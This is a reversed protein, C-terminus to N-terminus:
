VSNRILPTSEEMDIKVSLEAFKVSALYRILELAAVVFLGIDLAVYWTETLTIDTSSLGLSAGDKEFYELILLKMAMFIISLVFCVLGVAMAIYGSVVASCRCCACCVGMASFAAVVILLSGLVLCFYALWSNRFDSSKDGLNTFLILAITLLMVGVVVDVVNIVHLGWLSM